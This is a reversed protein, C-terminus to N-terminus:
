GKSPPNELLMFSSLYFIVVINQTKPTKLSSVEDKEDKRMDTAPYTGM